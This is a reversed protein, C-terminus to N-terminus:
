VISLAFLVFLYLFPLYGRDRKEQVLIDMKEQGNVDSSRTRPGEFELVQVLAAGVEVPRQLPDQLLM